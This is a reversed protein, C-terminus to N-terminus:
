KNLINKMWNEVDEIKRPINESMRVAKGESEMCINDEIRVANGRFEEPVSLDDARFYLGPEITFCM